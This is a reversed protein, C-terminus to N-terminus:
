SQSWFILFLVLMGMAIFFFPALNRLLKMRAQARRIQYREWVIHIDLNNTAVIYKIQQENVKERLIRCALRDCKLHQESLYDKFATAVMKAKDEATATESNM